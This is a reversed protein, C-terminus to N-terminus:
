GLNMTCNVGATEKKTISAISFIELNLKEIIVLLILPPYNKIKIMLSTYDSLGDSNILLVTLPGSRKNGGTFM